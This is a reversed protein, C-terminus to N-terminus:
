ATREIAVKFFTLLLRTGARLTGWWNGSVKSQGAVRRNYPLPIELIRLRARAARMQMELNWGYTMETLGLALLDRRRIARFACMDTYRIGYRLKILMGLLLGIFVQHWGMSGPARTGRVRSAIVFDQEGAIIPDLLREILDARDSGDGDMFVLLADGPAELAGLYCARGYGRGTELVRAGASRAEIATSDESASDAVIILDVVQRPVLRLAAGIAGAENRTPVILVVPPRPLRLEAHGEGAMILAGSTARM